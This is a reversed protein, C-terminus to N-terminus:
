ATNTMREIRFTIVDNVAGGRFVGSATYGILGSRSRWLLTRSLVEFWRTPQLASIFPEDAGPNETGTLLKM